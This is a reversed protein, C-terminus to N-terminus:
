LSTLPVHPALDAAVDIMKLFVDREQAGAIAVGGNFIFGPVGNMGLGHYRGSEALIAKSDTTEELHVRVLDPDLGHDAGILCLEQIDGIDRGEMFFARFVADVLREQQAPANGLRILSHANLTNPARRILDLRLELGVDEATTTIAGLNRTIRRPDSFKMRLFDQWGIGGKPLEPYLIFPRFTLTVSLDSRQRLADEFRRKGIFCWPCAADFVIDIEM